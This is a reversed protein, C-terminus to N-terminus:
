AADDPPFHPADWADAWAEDRVDEDVELLAQCLRYGFWLANLGFRSPYAHEICYAIDTDRMNGDECVIHLWGGAPEKSNWADIRAGLLSSHTPATKPRHM